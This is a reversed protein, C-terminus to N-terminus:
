MSKATQAKSFSAAQVITLTVISNAEVGVSPVVFYVSKPLEYPGAGAVRAGNILFCDQCHAYACSTCPITCENPFQLYIRDVGGRLAVNSKFTVKYEAYAGRTPPTVTISLDSTGKVVSFPM